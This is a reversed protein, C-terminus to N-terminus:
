RFIKLMDTATVSMASPFQDTVADDYIWAEDLHSGNLSALM